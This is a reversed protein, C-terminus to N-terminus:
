FLYLVLTLLPYPILRQIKILIKLIFTTVMDVRLEEKSAKVKLFSEHIFSTISRPFISILSLFDCGLNKMPRTKTIFPRPMHFSKSSIRLNAFPKYGKTLPLFVRPGKYYVIIFM